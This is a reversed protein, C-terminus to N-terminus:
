DQDSAESRDQATGVFLVLAMLVPFITWALEVQKSGYVQDADTDYGHPHRRFKLVTYALVSLVVGLIATISLVLGSLEFITKVLKSAPAFINTPSSCRDKSPAFIVARGGSKAVM